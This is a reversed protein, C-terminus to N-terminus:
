KLLKSLTRYSLTIALSLIFTQIMEWLIQIQAQDWFYYNILEQFGYLMWINILVTIIWFTLYKLPWAIIHLIKKFVFNTLWFITGLILYVRLGKFIEQTAQINESLQIDIGFKYQNAVWLILTCILISIIIERFFRRMSDVTILFDPEIKNFYHLSFGAQKM